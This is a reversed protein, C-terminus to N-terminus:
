LKYVQLHPIGAISVASAKGGLVRKACEVSERGVFNASDCQRLVLAIEEVEAIKGEYFNKSKKLDIVFDGEEFVKGLLDSDCVALVREIVKKGGVVKSREHLNMSLM